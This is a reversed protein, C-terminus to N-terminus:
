PAFIRVQSFKKKKNRETKTFHLLSYCLSEINVDLGTYRQTKIQKSRANVNVSTHVNRVSILYCFIISEVQIERFSLENCFKVRVLHVIHQRNGRRNWYLSLMKDAFLSILSYNHKFLSFNYEVM